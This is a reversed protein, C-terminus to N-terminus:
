VGYASASPTQLCDDEWDWFLQKGIKIKHDDTILCSFWECKIEDQIEAGKYKEVKIFKTGSDDTAIMHTGTVYIDAGDVGRGKLKYLKERYDRNELRLIIQVRSGNELIAGLDLDKMDLVKGNQLKVKTEPHFCNGSLAQVMQGPPGNWASNMTKVSGDLIYLLAVMIGIIKGIMDKIGIFIRQFEIIINLFVGFISGVLKTFFTRINSLLNNAYYLSDGFEGGMSTLNSIIYTIPQLLYGMFSTQTNQVCYVFDKEINDSLPMYLPNCRYKAWNNKIDAIASFYYMALIQSIFGLNVYIFNIWDSGKPM